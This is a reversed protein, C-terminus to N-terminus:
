SIYRSARLRSRRECHSVGLVYLGLMPVTSVGSLDGRSAAGQHQGRVSRETSPPRRVEELSLVQEYVPLLVASAIHNTANMNEIFIIFQSVLM